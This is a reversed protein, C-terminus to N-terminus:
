LLMLEKIRWGSLILDNFQYAWDDDMISDIDFVGEKALRVVDGEGEIKKDLKVRVVQDMKDHVKVDRIDQGSARFVVVGLSDKYEM